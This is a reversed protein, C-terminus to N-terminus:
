QKLKFKKGDITIEGGEKLTKKQEDTLKNAPVSIAEDAPKASADGKASAKPMQFTNTTAPRPIEGPKTIDLKPAGGGANPIWKDPNDMMGQGGQYITLPGGPAQPLGAIGTPFPMFDATRRAHELDVMKRENDTVEGALKTRAGATAIGPKLTQNLIEAQNIGQMEPPLMSSPAIGRGTYFGKEVENLMKSRDLRETIPANMRNKKVDLLADYGMPSVYPHNTTTAGIYPTPTPFNGIGQNIVENGLQFSGLRKQMEAERELQAKLKQTELASQTAAEEAGRAVAMKQAYETNQQEVWSGKGAYPKQTLATPDEKVDFPVDSPEGGFYPNKKASSEGSISRSLNGLLWNSLAANM